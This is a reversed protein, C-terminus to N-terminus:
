QTAGIALSLRVVMLAAEAPTLVFFYERPREVMGHTAESEITIRLRIGDGPHLPQDVTATVM